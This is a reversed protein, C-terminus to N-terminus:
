LSFNLQLAASKRTRTKMRAARALQLTAQALAINSDALMHLCQEHQLAM